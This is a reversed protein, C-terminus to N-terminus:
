LHVEKATSLYYSGFTKEHTVEREIELFPPLKLQGEDATDKDSRQTYLM